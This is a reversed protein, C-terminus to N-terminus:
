IGSYAEDRFYRGALKTFVETQNDSRGPLPPFALLDRDFGPFMEELLPLVEQSPIAHTMEHLASSLSAGRCLFIGHEKAPSTERQGGESDNRRCYCTEGEPLFHVKIKHKTFLEALEKLYRTM